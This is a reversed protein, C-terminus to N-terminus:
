KKLADYIVEQIKTRTNLDIILNNEADPYVRNALFIYILQNEPDAWAFTGTFGSHGFSKASVCKCAPSALKPNTEPKDFGLGRRNSPCFRCSTFLEVTEKNLYRRGGYEGNQLLMQMIKALDNANSFLGAHGAVGGLLAAGQDHVYGDIIQRRFARDFETPAIREIPFHELPKYGLTTAGIPKYFNTNVYNDLSTNTISEIIQHMFYFGLDSYKYGKRKLLESENILKYITDRFNNRVYM